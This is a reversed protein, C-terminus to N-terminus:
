TNFITLGALCIGTFCLLCAAILLNRKYSASAMFFEEVSLPQGKTAVENRRLITRDVKWKRHILSGLSLLMALFWCIFAGAILKVSCVVAADGSVFKLVTAYLGPIALSLTVLQKALEDLLKPQEIVSQVFGKELEEDLKSPPASQAVTINEEM